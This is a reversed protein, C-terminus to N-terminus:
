RPSVPLSRGFWAGGDGIKRCDTGDVALVSSVGGADGEVGSSRSPVGDRLTSSIISGTLGIWKGGDDLNSEYIPAFPKGM